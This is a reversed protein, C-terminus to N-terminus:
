QQTPTRPFVLKDYLLVEAVFPRAKLHDRVSFTEWQQIKM